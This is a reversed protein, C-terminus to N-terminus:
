FGDIFEEITRSEKPFDGKPIIIRKDDRTPIKLDYSNSVTGLILDIELGVKASYIAAGLEGIGGVGGIAGIPTAIMATTSGGLAGKATNSILEEISTDEDTLLAASGGGSFAGIGMAGMVGVANFYAGSAAGIVVGMGGAKLVADFDGGAVYAGWAAGAGGAVGGIVAGVAPALPEVERVEDVLSNEASFDQRYMWSQHSTSNDEAVGFDDQLFERMQDGTAHAIDERTGDLGDYAIGRDMDDVHNFEHALTAILDETNQVKDLNIAVRRTNSEHFGETASKDVGNDTEQDSVYLGDYLIVEVDEVGLLEGYEDALIESAAVVDDKNDWTYSINMSCNRGEVIKNM